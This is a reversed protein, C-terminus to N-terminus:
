MGALEALLAARSLEKVPQSADHAERQNRGLLQQMEAMTRAAQAKAAAPAGKDQMIDRLTQKILEDDSGGHINSNDPSDSSPMEEPLPFPLDHM